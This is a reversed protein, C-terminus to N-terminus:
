PAIRYAAVSAVATRRQYERVNGPWLVPSEGSNADLYWSRCGGSEWVTSRLRRRLEDLYRGQAEPTVEIAGTGARKLCDLVHKVQAEIMLVVSNHGLGTNPGLLLFFNPFGAVTIGLYASIRERWTEALSRGNRGEITLDRLLDAVHFGTGYILVDAARQRGDATVVADPAIRAIPDTVLEVNPRALAPYYDSSVLVRKCGIRYDPTLVARLEPDAVQRRLHALAQREVFRRLWGDAAFARHRADYIRFLAGRLAHMLWPHRRFRDRWAASIERDLRPLVWAATRQYVTLRAVRPAIEPIFQAASAGTGIVAVTRGELPVDDRWQASHFAPGTFTGIGELDPLRPVHLAGVGSVLFRSTIEEGSALRTHWLRTGDEWRAAVARCGFRIHPAIGFDVAAKKMYRWIEPQRAFLRSWDPNDYGAFSYLHSHVDCACGPYRNEFWTGGLDTAKELIQYRLGLGSGELARAMSLGSFGAGLILVDCTM